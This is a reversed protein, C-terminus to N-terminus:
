LLGGPFTVARPASSTDGSSSLAAGPGRAAAAAQPAHPAEHVPLAGPHRAPTGLTDGGTDGALAHPHPGAAARPSERPDGGVLPETGATAAPGPPQRPACGPAGPGPRPPHYVPSSPSLSSSHPTIVFQAPPHYRVPSPPSLSSHLTIVFQLPSHYGDLTSHFTIVVQFAIIQM